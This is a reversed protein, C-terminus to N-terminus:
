ESVIKAKSRLEELYKKDVAQAAAEQKGNGAAATAEQSFVLRAVRDDSVQKTSCVGLFEVGKDTDLTSTAQGVPTSTVQKSWEAPLEQEVFKGLDRVTVDLTGKAIDRTTDCGNFRARMANAEGRRKPLIGRNNAPVVFIVQQLQYETSVPKKGGDKLMRQVADQESVRTGGQSRNRTALARGWSMQMRIYEKFHQPTVGAKDLVGNLQNLTMKNNTAFRAYADNVESDSVLLNLRKLEQRKLAEDTLEDRAQQTLNGKKHQLKLFAARKAIDYDTIAAGNVVIKIESAAAPLTAGATTVASLAPIMAAALIHKRVMM